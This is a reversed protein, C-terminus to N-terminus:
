EVIRYNSDNVVKIMEILEEKMIKEHEELSRKRWDAQGKIRSELNEVMSWQNKLKESDLYRNSLNSEILQTYEKLCCLYVFDYFHFLGSGGHINLHNDAMFIFMARDDGSLQEIHDYYTKFIETLPSNTGAKGNIQRQTQYMILHGIAKELVIDNRETGHSVSSVLYLCFLLIKM